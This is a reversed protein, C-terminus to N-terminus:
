GVVAQDLGHQDVFTLRLFDARVRSDGVIHIV